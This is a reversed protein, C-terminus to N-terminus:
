ICTRELVIPYQRTPELCLFMKVSESYDPKPLKPVAGKVVPKSWECPYKSCPGIQVQTSACGTLSGTALAALLALTRVTGM